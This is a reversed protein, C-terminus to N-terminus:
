NNNGDTTYDDLCWYYGLLRRFPHPCFSSMRFSRLDLLKLEQINQLELGLTIRPMAIAISPKIWSVPPCAFSLSFLASGLSRLLFVHTPLYVSLFRDGARALHHQLSPCHHIRHTRNAVASKQRHFPRPLDMARTTFHWHDKLPASGRSIRSATSRRRNNVVHTRQLTRWCKRM